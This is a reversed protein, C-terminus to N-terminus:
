LATSADVGEDHRSPFLGGGPPGVTIFPFDLSITMAIIPKKFLPKVDSKSIFVQLVV